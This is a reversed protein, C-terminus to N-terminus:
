HLRKFLKIWENENMSNNVLEIDGNYFTIVTPLTKIKFSSAIDEYKDVDIDIIITNRKNSLVSEDNKSCNGNKISNLAKHLECTSYKCPGCWSASFKLIINVSKVSSSNIYDKIEKRNRFHLESGVSNLIHRINM